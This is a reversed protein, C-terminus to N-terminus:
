GGGDLRYYDPGYDVNLKNSVSTAGGELANERAARWESWSDVTGTLIAVGDEVQVEVDSSDVFPSWWLESEIDEHIEWDSELGVSPTPYTYWTYDYTYWPMDVYPEYTLVGYDDDVTLNNDVMLVGSVDAVIDDSHAKEFLTDVEGRLTVVGNEANPEIDFSELYPDRAIAESVEQELVDDTIEIPNVMIDNKVRWVGVTNRADSAAARKASITPVTGVLTVVGDEAIVTLENRDIRPDEEIANLVADRLETDSLDRYVNDKTMDKESGDSVRLETTDVKEVNATWAETKVYRKEAASNVKGDIKVVGDDVIVTISDENILSDLEFDERIEAAIETDPRSEKYVIDIENTVGRVGKVGAIVERALQREEYSNAEGSLTVFGEAVDVDIDWSETAPNTTLAAYIDTQIASDKRGSDYVNLQDVVSKVGRITQATEVARDKALINNVNGTLHVVGDEARVYVTTVAIADDDRFESYVKSTIESDKITESTNTYAAPLPSALLMTPLGACLISIMRSKTNKRKNYTLM